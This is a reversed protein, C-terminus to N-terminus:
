ESLTQAARAKKVFHYALQAGMMTQVGLGYASGLSMKPTFLMQYLGAVGFAFMVFAVSWYYLPSKGAM